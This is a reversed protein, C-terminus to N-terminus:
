LTFLTLYPLNELELASLEMLEPGILELIFRMQSRITMYMKVFNPASQKINSSALTNILFNHVSLRVIFCFYERNKIQNALPQKLEEDKTLSYQTLWLFFLLVLNKCYTKSLCVSLFVSIHVSTFCFLGLREIRPCFFIFFIYSFSFTGWGRMKEIKWINKIRESFIM